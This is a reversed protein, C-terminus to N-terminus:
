VPKFFKYTKWGVVAVLLIWFVVSSNILFLQLKTLPKDVPILTTKNTNLAISTKLNAISDKQSNITQDQHNTVVLQNKYKDFYVKSSNNGSQKSTNVNLLAQKIKLNCLSDCDQIKTAGTVITPLGITFTDNIALSKEIMQKFFVTSKSTVISDKNSTTAIPKRACSASAFFWTILLLAILFRFWHILAVKM